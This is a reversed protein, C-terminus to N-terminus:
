VRCGESKLWWVASVVDQFNKLQKTKCIPHYKWTKFAWVDNKKLLLLSSRQWSIVCRVDGCFCDFKPQLLGSNDKLFSTIIDRWSSVKIATVRWVKEWKERWLGKINWIHSCIFLSGHKEWLARVGRPSPWIGWGINVASPQWSAWMSYRVDAEGPLSGSRNFGRM